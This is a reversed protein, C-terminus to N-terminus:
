IEGQELHQKLLKATNLLESSDPKKQKDSTELPELPTKHKISQQQQEQSNESDNLNTRSNQQTTPTHTMPLAPSFPNKLVPKQEAEMVPNKPVNGNFFQRLAENIVKSRDGWPVQTLNIENDQEVVFSSVKM